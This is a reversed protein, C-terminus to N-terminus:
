ARKGDLCGLLAVCFVKNGVYFESFDQLCAGLAGKLAPYFQFDEHGCNLEALHCWKRKFAGGIWHRRKQTEQM